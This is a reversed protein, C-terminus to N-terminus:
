HGQELKRLTSSASEGVKSVLEVGLGFQSAKIQYLLLERPSYAKGSVIGETFAKLEKQVSQMDGLNESVRSMVGSFSEKSVGSQSTIEKNGASLASLETISQLKMRDDGPLEEEGFLLRMVKLFTAEKVLHRLISM